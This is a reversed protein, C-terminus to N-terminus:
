LIKNLLENARTIRENYISDIEGQILGAIIKLDYYLDNTEVGESQYELERLLARLYKFTKKKTM